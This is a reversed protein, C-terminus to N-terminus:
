MSRSIFIFYICQFIHKFIRRLTQSDQARDSPSLHSSHTKWRRLRGLIEFMLMNLTSCCHIVFAFIHGCALMGLM